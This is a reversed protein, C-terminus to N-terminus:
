RDDDRSSDERNRSNKKNLFRSIRSVVSTNSEAPEELIDAKEPEQAEEYAPTPTPSVAPEELVNAKEPEQAEEYAPTPTHEVAPEELIDAKEPEQAEEYAPTPTPSVTPEELIDAKEPEQSEEYAPTPTPEVAPEEIAIDKEEEPTEEAIIVLNPEAKATIEKKSQENLFEDEEVSPAVELEPMSFSTGGGNSSTSSIPNLYQETEMDFTLEEELNKNMFEFLAFDVTAVQIDKFQKNNERLRSFDEKTLSNGSSLIGLLQIVTDKKIQDMGNLNDNLSLDDFDQMGPIRYDGYCPLENRYKEMLRSVIYDKTDDSFYNIYEAYKCTWDFLANTNTIDHDAIKSFDYYADHEILSITNQSELPIVQGESLDLESIPFLDMLRNEDLNENLVTQVKVKYEDNFDDIPFLRQYDGLAAKYEDANKFKEPKETLDTLLKFALKSDFKQLLKKKYAESVLMPVLHPYKEKLFNLPYEKYLENLDKDLQKADKNKEAKDLIKRLQELGKSPDKKSLEDFIIFDKLVEELFEKSLMYKIKRKLDDSFLDIPYRRKWENLDSQFRAYNKTAQAYSFIECLLLYAEDEDFDRLKSKVDDSLDKMDVPDSNSNNTNKKSM